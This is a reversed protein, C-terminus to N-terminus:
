SSIIIEMSPFRAGASTEASMKSFTLAAKALFAYVFLVNHLRTTCHLARCHLKIYRLASKLNKSTSPRMSQDVKDVVTALYFVSTVDFSVLYIKLM